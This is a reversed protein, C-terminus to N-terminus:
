GGNNKVGKQVDLTFLYNCNPCKVKNHYKEHEERMQEWSEPSMGWASNIGEEADCFPCNGSM